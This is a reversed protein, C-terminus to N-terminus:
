FRRNKNLVVLSFWSLAVMASTNVIISDVHHWNMYSLNGRLLLFYEELSYLFTLVLINVIMMWKKSPHFQAILVGITFVPGFVFFFSSGLISIGPNNIDYTNHNMAHTDISLQLVIAFVGCWINTKLDRWDVLILFLIWSALFLIIWDM